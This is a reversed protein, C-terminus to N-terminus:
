PLVRVFGPLKRHGHFQARVQSEDMPPYHTGLGRRVNEASQRKVRGHFRRRVWIEEDVGVYHLLLFDRTKPTVKCGWFGIAEHHGPLHRIWSGPRVIIPKGYEKAPIGFKRQEMLPRGPDYPGEGPGPFMNYGVTGQVRHQPLRALADRVAGGAAPVVFEDADVILVYDFRGVCGARAAALAECKIRTNFEGGSAYTRVQVNARGRCADISGDDSENDLVIVSDVQRCYHDLFQPLLDIENYVATIVALKM